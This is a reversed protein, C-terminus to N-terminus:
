NQAVVVGKENITVAVPQVMVGEVLNDLNDVLIPVSGELGKSIVWANNHTGVSNVFLKRAKQEQDLTWVMLTGDAQPKAALQPIAYGNIRGITLNARVFMGPLILAEVNDFKVRITVTGTSTSVKQGVSVLEGVAEYNQGNELIIRAEIEDGLTVEGSEMRDHMSLMRTSAESLDVFIPDLQTVTTLIDSQGATVLDGISVQASAVRGTLPSTITTRQLNIKAARVDAQAAAVSAKAQRLETRATDVTALTVGSGALKEYRSLNEQASPVAAEASALEAEALALDTLYSEQEIQFLPDGKKVTTGARYLVDTIVGDVLPRINADKEALAQGSLTLTLPLSQETLSIVGAPIAQNGRGEALAMPGPPQALAYQNAFCFIAVIATLILRSKM